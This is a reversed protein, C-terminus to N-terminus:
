SDCVSARLGTVMSVKLDILLRSELKKAIKSSMDVLMLHGHSHKTGADTM